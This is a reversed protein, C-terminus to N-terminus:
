RSKVIHTGYFIDRMTRYKPNFPNILYYDEMEYGYGNDVWFLQIQKAMEVQSKEVWRSSARHPASTQRTEVLCITDSTRPDDSRCTVTQKINGPLSMLYLLVVGIICCAIIFLWLANERKREEDQFIM